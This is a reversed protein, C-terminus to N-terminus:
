SRNTTRTSPMAMESGAAETGETTVVAPESEAAQETVEAGGDAEEAGGCAAALLGLAALIVISRRM